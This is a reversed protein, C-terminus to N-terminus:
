FCLYTLDLLLQHHITHTFSGALKEFRHSLCVFALQQYNTCNYGYLSERWRNDQLKHDLGVTALRSM